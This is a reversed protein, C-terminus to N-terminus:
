VDARVPIESFLPKDIEGVKAEPNSEYAEAAPFSLVLATM